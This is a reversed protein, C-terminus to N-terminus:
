KSTRDIISFPTNFYEVMIISKDMEGQMDLLKQKMYKSARNNFALISLITIDKEHLAKKITIFDGVIESLIGQGLTALIGSM